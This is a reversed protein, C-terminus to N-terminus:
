TVTIHHLTCPMKQTALMTSTSNRCSQQPLQEQRHQGASSLVFFGNMLSSKTAIQAICMCGSRLLLAAAVCSAALVSSAAALSVAAAAAAAASSGAALRCRVASLLLLLAADCAVLQSPGRM